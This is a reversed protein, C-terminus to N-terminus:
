VISIFIPEVKLELKSLSLASTIHSCAGGLSWGGWYAKTKIPHQYVYIYEKRKICPSAVQRPWQVHLCAMSILHTYIINRICMNHLRCVHVGNCSMANGENEPALVYMYM